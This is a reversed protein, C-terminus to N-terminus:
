AAVAKIVAFNFVLAESLTGGSQNFVHIQFSGANVAEVHFRYTGGTAYSGARLNLVITDTAAVLSNNVTFNVSSATALAAANMTIAGTTKNLTVATTKSTAQTVAGGSGTGYGLGGGGNIIFNGSTDIQARNTNNIAFNIASADLTQISAAGSNYYVGFKPTGTGFKIGSGASGELDLTTINAGFSSPSTTGLGINGSTDSVFPLIGNVIVFATGALNYEVELYTGAPVDGSALAVLTGGINKKITTATLGNVSLTCSGTVATNTIFAFRQGNYYAAPAVSYTLTLATGTGGSTLTYSRWNWERTVAGQLARGADDLTSPAASGLWSPMTGSGNSADTQSFVSTNGLDPM